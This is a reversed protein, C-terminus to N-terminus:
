RGLIAACYTFIVKRKFGLRSFNHELFTNTHLICSKKDGHNSDGVGQSSHHSAPQGVEGPDIRQNHGVRGDNEGSECYKQKWITSRVGRKHDHCEEESEKDTLLWWFYKAIM